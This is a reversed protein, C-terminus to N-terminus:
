LKLNLSYLKTNTLFGRISVDPDFSHLTYTPSSITNDVSIVYYMAPLGRNKEHRYDTHELPIIVCDGYKLPVCDSKITIYIDDGYNSTSTVTATRITKRKCKIKGM